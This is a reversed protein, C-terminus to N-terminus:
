DKSTTFYKEVHEKIKLKADPSGTYHQLRATEFDHLMYLTNLDDPLEHVNMEVKYIVENLYYQEYSPWVGPAFQTFVKEMFESYKKPIGILGGNYRFSPRYLYRDQTTGITNELHQKAHSDWAMCLINMDFDKLVEVDRSRPLLDLDWTIIFDYGPLIKHILLKAWSPHAKKEVFEDPPDTIIHYEIGHHAFYDKFLKLSDEAYFIEGINIAFIAVCFRM